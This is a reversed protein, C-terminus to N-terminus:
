AESGEAVADNVMAALELYEEKSLKGVAYFTDIRETIETADLTNTRIAAEIVRKMLKYM